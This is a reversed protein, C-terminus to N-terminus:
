AANPATTGDGDDDRPATRPHQQLLNRPRRGPPPPPPPALHRPPRRYTHGGPSIWTSWGLPDVTVTWGNHKAGHCRRSRDRLGRARTAGEPWPIEHDQDCVTPATSCGPGDCGGDRLDVFERLEDSPDHNPEVRMSADDEGVITPETAMALLAAHITEATQRPDPLMSRQVSPDGPVIPGELALLKGSRPDVCTKRLEAEPLLAMGQGATIWGYGDLWVPEDSLGVATCVPVQVLVQSKRRRRRKIAGTPKPTDPLYRDVLSPIGVPPLVGNRLDLLELCLDPLDAFLDAERQAVTRAEDEAVVTRGLLAELGTIFRRSQVATVTAGVTGMGHEDPKNWVERFEAANAHKEEATAPDARLVERQVRRRLDAPACAAAVPLVADEVAACVEASSERTECVLVRAQAVFLAGARLAGHTGPLREVLHRADNLRSEAVHQSIGETGAIEMVLGPWPRSCEWGQQPRGASGALRAYVTAKAAFWRAEAKDFGELAALDKASFPEFLEPV